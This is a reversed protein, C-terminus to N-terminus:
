ANTFSCARTEIGRIGDVTTAVDDSAHNVIRWQLAIEGVSQGVRCRGLNHLADPVCQMPQRPRSTSAATFFGFREPVCRMVQRAWRAVALSCFAVCMYVEWVLELEEPNLAHTVLRRLHPASAGLVAAIRLVM